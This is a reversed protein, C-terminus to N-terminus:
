NPNGQPNRDRPNNHRHNDNPNKLKSEKFKRKGKDAEEMPKLMKQPKVLTPCNHNNARKLDLNWTMPIGKLVVHRIMERKTLKVVGNDMLPIYNNLTKTRRIYNNIRM